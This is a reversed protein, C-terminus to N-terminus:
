RVLPIWLRWFIKRRATRAWWWYGGGLEALLRANAVLQNHNERRRGADSFCEIPCEFGGICRLHLDELLKGLDSTRRGQKIWKKALDLQLEVRRFGAAAYAALKEELPEAPATSATAIAIQSTKMHDEIVHDRKNQAAVAAVM